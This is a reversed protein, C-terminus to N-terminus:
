QKVCAGVLRAEPRGAKLDRMMPISPDPGGAKEEYAKRNMSIERGPGTYIVMKTKGIYVTSGKFRCFYRESGNTLYWGRSGSKGRTFTGVKFGKNKLREFSSAEASPTFAVLGGLGLVLALGAVCASQFVRKM